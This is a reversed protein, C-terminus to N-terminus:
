DGDVDLRRGMGSGGARAHREKRLESANFAAFGFIAPADHYKAAGEAVDLLLKTVTNISVDCLRSTARLSNGEVLM